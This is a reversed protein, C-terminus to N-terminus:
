LASINGGIRSPSYAVVYNAAALLFSSRRTAIEWSRMKKISELDCCTAAAEINAVMEDEDFDKPDVSLERRAAPGSTAWIWEVHYM